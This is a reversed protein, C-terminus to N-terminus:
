SSWDSPRVRRRVSPRSTVRSRGSTVEGGGHVLRWNVINKVGKLWSKHPIYDHSVETLSVLEQRKVDAALHHLSARSIADLTVAVGYITTMM